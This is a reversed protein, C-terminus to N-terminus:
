ASSDVDVGVVLKPTPGSFAAAVIRSRCLRSRLAAQRHAFDAAQRIDLCGKAELAPAMEPIRAGDRRYNIAAVRRPIQALGIGQAEAIM